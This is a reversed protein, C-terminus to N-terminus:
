TMVIGSHLTFQVIAYYHCASGAMVFAHWTTHFFPVHQDFTLFITGVTYSVGGAFMWWLCASPIEHYLAMAPLWGLLAYNIVDVSNVRHKLVVKSILGLIAVAWVIGLVIWRREPTAYLLIFPTYTGAILLYIAAQDLIRFLHKWRAAQIAHSLTSSAYVAVLSLAYMTLGTLSVIDTSRSAALLLVVAGVASLFFGLGHSLSNAIEERMSQYPFDYKIPQSISAM